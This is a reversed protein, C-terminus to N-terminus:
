NCRRHWGKNKTRNWTARCCHYALGRVFDPEVTTPMERDYWCRDSAPRPTELRDAAALVTMKSQLDVQEGSRGFIEQGTALPEPVYGGVVDAGATVLHAEPEGDLELDAGHEPRARTAIGGPARATDPPHRGTVGHAVEGSGRDGAARLAHGHPISV